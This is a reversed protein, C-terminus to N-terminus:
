GPHSCLTEADIVVFADLGFGVHVVRDIDSEEIAVVFSNLTISPGCYVYPRHLHLAPPLPVPSM